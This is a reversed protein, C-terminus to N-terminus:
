KQRKQKRQFARIMGLIFNMRPVKKMYGRYAEEFKEICRKEEDYTDSYTIIAAILGPIIVLWHLTILPLAINILVGALYQPHRVIGYIGSDVLVTTHMYGRGTVKGKRRFTFIPLWGFIASIWLIIWGANIRAASSKPNYLVIALIIQGVVTITLITSMFIMKKDHM